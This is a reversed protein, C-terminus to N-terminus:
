WVPPKGGPRDQAQQDQPAPRRPSPYSSPPDLPPGSPPGWHPGQEAGPPPPGASWPEFWARSTSLFLGAITARCALQHLLGVPFALLGVLFAAGASTPSCTARGTTGAGPSGPWCSPGWRGPSCCCARRAVADAPALRGATPASGSRHTSWATSSRTRSRGAGDANRRLADRGHRQLGLDPHLRSVSAPVASALEGDRTRPEGAPNRCAGQPLRRGSGAFGSGPRPAPRPPRAPPRSSPLRHPPGISPQDAPQDAPRSRSPSTCGTRSGPCRRDGPGQKSSKDRRGPAQVERVPRGAYWDRAPGSWLMLIAVVVLAGPIGGALPATLLIPVALISLASGPARHRQLVFIGLVAAGRCVGRHDDAGRAHQTLAQDLTIGLGEGSPSSIVETIQERM